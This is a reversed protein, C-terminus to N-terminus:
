ASAVPKKPPRLPRINMANLLFAAAVGLLLGVAAALTLSVSLSGREVPQDLPIAQSSIRVESNAAARALRLEAQKNALAQVSEWALNRQETFQLNRAREVEIQGQLTRLQAELENVTAALPADPSNATPLSRSEALALFKAAQAQGAAFLTNSDPQLAISSFIGSQFLAPYTNSIAQTLASDAPVKVALDQFSDGSLMAQNLQDIRQELRTLQGELSAVTADVQHRLDDIGVAAASGDLQIQLPTSVQPQFQSQEQQVQQQLQQQSQQQPQQAQLGPALYDNSFGSPTDAAANVLQLNLMQLALASAAATADDPSGELQQEITRAADLLSSTHLWQDYAMRLASRLSDSQGTFTDVQAANIADLYAAVQARQGEQEKRFALVQNQVQADVYTQVIEQYSDVLSSMYTSLANLRGQQLIELTDSVVGSQRTLAELESSALFGELEVQASSYAAQADVLQAEVSGLMEDPVQGYVSNVQQVYARAWVNAIDAALQPSAARVRIEILDSTGTRGSATALGATVANLLAAPNRLAAPLREGMEDIVQQAISGSKVLAVLAARRSNLDLNPQDSTTTFREDFSVETSTRVIAATASAEYVPSTMQRYVLVGVGTLMVAALVILVIELWRERLVHLYRTLDTEDSAAESWQGVHTNDSVPNVSM